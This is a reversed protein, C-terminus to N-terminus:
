GNTLSEMWKIYNSVAAEESFEHTVTDYLACGLKQRLDDSLILQLLAEGFANKDGSNVMLGNKGNRIITPIEGVDTVVVPKKAAGYELLAVPLGESKSALVAIDSANIINMTDTRSGYLFVNQLLNMDAIYATIDASYDDNFNKGVLHFTWDPHTKMITAAVQLLLKHNKQPRLNAMCLVRKGDTGKLITKNGSFTPQQMFNPIYLVQRCNLHQHAWKELYRNVVVIGSFLYSAAKLIRSKRIPLFESMGYHDHWVIKLKPYTLKILIAIFYSSSHAHLFEVRNTICYKRLRLVASIDTVNKRGLFLYSVNDSIQPKLGGEKRTAVLGSFDVKRALANAYSIAIREAGGTELSDIIQLIRM